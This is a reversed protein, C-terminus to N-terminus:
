RRSITYTDSVVRENDASCTVDDDTVETNAEAIHTIGFVICDRDIIGVAHHEIM